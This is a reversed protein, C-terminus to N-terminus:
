PQEGVRVADARDSDHHLRNRHAACRPGRITLHHSAFGVAVELFALTEPDVRAFAFPEGVNAPLEVGMYGGVAPVCLNSLNQYYANLRKRDTATLSAGRNMNVAISRAQEWDMIPRTVPERPADQSIPTARIRNVVWAGTAAGAVVGAAVLKRSPAPRSVPNQNQNM